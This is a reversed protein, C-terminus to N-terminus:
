RFINSRVTEYSVNNLIQEYVIKANIRTNYKDIYKDTFEDLNFCYKDGTIPCEHWIRYLIYQNNKHTSIERCIFYNCKGQIIVHKIEFKSNLSDVLNKSVFIKKTLSSMSSYEGKTKIKKYKQEFLCGTKIKYSEKKFEPHLFVHGQGYISISILLCSFVLVLSYRCFKM